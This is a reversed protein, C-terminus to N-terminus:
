TEQGRGVLRPWRLSHRAPVVTAKVTSSFGLACTVYFCPGVCDNQQLCKREKLIFCTWVSRLVPALFCSSINVM